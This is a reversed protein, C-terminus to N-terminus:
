GRRDPSDGAGGYGIEARAPRESDYFVPVSAGAAPTPAGARLWKRKTYCVGDVTYSVKMVHPFIAGDLTGARVPKTNVKLWWQTKVSVVTGTTEKPM